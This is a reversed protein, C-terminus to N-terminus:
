ISLLEAKKPKINKSVYKEYALNFNKYNTPVIEGDLVLTVFGSKVAQSIFTKIEAKTRKPVKLYLGIVHSSPYTFILDSEDGDYIPYGGFNQPITPFFVSAVNTGNDLFEISKDLMKESHSFAVYHNPYKTAFKVVNPVKTYDYFQVNPFLEFINLGGRSEIKYQSWLIDSTGNLRIAFDKTYSVKGKGNYRVEDKDLKEHKRIIGDIEDALQALFEQTSNIFYETKNVRALEVSTFSGRGSTFLCSEVCGDSSHSCVNMGKSNMTSPSLYMVYTTVGKKLGKITKASASGLLNKPKYFNQGNYDIGYILKVKEILSVNITQFKDSITKSNKM